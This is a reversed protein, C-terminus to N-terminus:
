RVSWFECFFKTGESELVITEDSVFGMVENREGTFVIIGDKVAVGMAFPREDNM